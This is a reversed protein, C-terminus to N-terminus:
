NETYLVLARVEIEQTARHANYIIYDRVLYENNAYFKVVDEKSLKLELQDLTNSLETIVDLPDDEQLLTELM